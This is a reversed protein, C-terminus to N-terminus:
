DDGHKEKAADIIEEEKKLWRRKRYEIKDIFQQRTTAMQPEQRHKKPTEDSDPQNIM